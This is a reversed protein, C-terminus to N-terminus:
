RSSSGTLGGADIALALRLRLPPHQRRMSSASTMRVAGEEARPVPVIEGPVHEGRQRGPSSREARAAGAEHRGGVHRVQAVGREVQQDIALLPVQCRALWPRILQYSRATRTASSAPNSGRKISASSPGGASLLRALLCPAAAARRHLLRDRSDDGRHAVLELRRRQADRRLLVLGGRSECPLPVLSAPPPARRALAADALFFSRCSAAPGEVV